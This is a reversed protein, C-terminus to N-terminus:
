QGHILSYLPGLMSYFQLSKALVVVPTVQYKSMKIRQLFWGLVSDSNFFFLYEFTKLRVSIKFVIEFVLVCRKYLWIPIHLVSSIVFIRWFLTYKSAVLSQHQLFFSSYFSLSGSTPRINLPFLIVSRLIDFCLIFRTIVNQCLSNCPM